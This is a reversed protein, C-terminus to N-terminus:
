EINRADVLTRELIEGFNRWHRWRGRATHGLMEKVKAKEAPSTKRWVLFEVHILSVLSKASHSTPAFLNIRILFLHLFLYFPFLADRGGSISAMCSMLTWLKLLHHVFLVSMSTSSHFITLSYCVICPVKILM